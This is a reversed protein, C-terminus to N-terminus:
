THRKKKGCGCGKKRVRKPKETAYKIKNSDNTKNLDNPNVSPNVWSKEM